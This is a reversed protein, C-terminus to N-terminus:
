ITVTIVEDGSAESDDDSPESSKNEVFESDSNNSTNHEKKGDNCYTVERRKRKGKGLSSFFTM